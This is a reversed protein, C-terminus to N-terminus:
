SPTGYVTCLLTQSLDTNSRGAAVLRFLYLGPRHIPRTVAGGSITLHRPCYASCDERHRLGSWEPYGTYTSTRVSDMPGNTRPHYNDGKRNVLNVLNGDRTRRGRPVPFEPPRIHRLSAGGGTFPRSNFKQRRRQILVSDPTERTTNRVTYWGRTRYPVWRTLTHRPLM